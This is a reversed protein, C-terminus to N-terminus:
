NYNRSMILHSPLGKWKPSRIINYIYIYIYINSKETKCKNNYVHFVSFATMRMIM